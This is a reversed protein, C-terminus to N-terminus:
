KKGRSVFGQIWRVAGAGRNHRQQEEFWYAPDNPRAIKAAEYAIKGSTELDDALKGIRSGILQRGPAVNEGIATGYATFPKGAFYGKIIDPIKNLFLLGGLSILTPLFTGKVGLAPPTWQPGTGYHLIQIIFFFIAVAPFLLINSLLGKFWDGFTSKSGPFAGMMLIIPAFITSLIIQIYAVVLSFFLKLVLFLVIISLVASLLSDIGGPVAAVKAVPHPILALLTTAKFVLSGAANTEIGLLGLLISKDWLLKIASWSIDGIGLGAVSAQATAIDKGPGGPIGAFLPVSLFLVVYILDILLGVIAYSFTVLILAIVIKPIANQITIVTKPDIKVRFMIALGIILFVIIFFIYAINRFVKWLPLINSFQNFGFGQAYAPKVIGLNEGVDALYEATTVPPVVILYSILRSTHGLTSNNPNEGELGGITTTIFNLIDTGWSSFPDGMFSSRSLTGAQRDNIIATQFQQLSSNLDATYACQKYICKASYGEVVECDNVTNCNEGSTIAAQVQKCFFALLFFPMFFFIVAGTKKFVSM